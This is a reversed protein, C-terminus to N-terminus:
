LGFLAGDAPQKRLTGANLDECGGATLVEYATLIGQALDHRGHISEVDIDALILRPGNQSNRFM